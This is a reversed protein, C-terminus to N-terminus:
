LIAELIATQVHLRNEAEDYVASRPGDLVEDAVEVNRRVPLCHLFFAKPAATMTKERVQWGQYGARVRKEEEWRGYYPIGGWSKACVAQAGDLAERQDTTVRVSGANERALEMIPDPLPFEAPAAVTVEAGLRTAALLFSNAVATPLPKPHPAWTLALKAKKATGLREVVTMLDAMGQMPHYLASELNLVPVDAHRAFATVVPDALDDELRELGAFARVGIADVVRSLVRAADKIHETKGADMVAGDRHELTWSDTGVNMTVPTGGLAAVALEMTTRTRLSPNLFVLAVSKGKLPAGRPPERKLAKARDILTELAKPTFDQTTLFDRGKMTM